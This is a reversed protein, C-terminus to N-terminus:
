YGRGRRPCYNDASWGLHLVRTATRHWRTKMELEDCVVTCYANTCCAGFFSGNKMGAADGQHIGVNTPITWMVDNFTLMNEAGFVWLPHPPISLSFFYNFTSSCDSFWLMGWGPLGKRGLVLWRAYAIAVRKRHHLTLTQPYGRFLGSFSRRFPWRDDWVGVHCWLLFCFFNM